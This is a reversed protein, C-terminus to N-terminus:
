LTDFHLVRNHRLDPLQALIDVTMKKEVEMGMVVNTKTAMEMVLINEVMRGMVAVLHRSKNVTKLTKQIVVTIAMMM